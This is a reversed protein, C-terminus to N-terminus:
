FEEGLLRPLGFDANGNLVVGILRSFFPSAQVSFRTKRPSKWSILAIGARNFQGSSSSLYTQFVFLRTGVFMGM